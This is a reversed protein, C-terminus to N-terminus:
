TRAIVGNNTGTITVAHGEKSEAFAYGGTCLPLTFTAVVSSITMTVITRWSWVDPNVNLTVTPSTGTTPHYIGTRMIFDMLRAVTASALTQRTLGVTISYEQELDDGLIHCEYVNRNMIRLREANEANTQGHSFDGPGPGVVLGVGNADEKRVVTTRSSYRGM